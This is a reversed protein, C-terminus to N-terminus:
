DMTAQRTKKLYRMVRLGIRIRVISLLMTLLTHLTRDQELQCM